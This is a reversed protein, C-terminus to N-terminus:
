PMSISNQLHKAGPNYGQVKEMSEIVKLFQLRPDDHTLDTNTMVYEVIDLFDKIPIKYKSICVVTPSHKMGLSKIWLEAPRTKKSLIFSM